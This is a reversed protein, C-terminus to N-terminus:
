LTTQNNVHQISATDAPSAPHQYEGGLVTGRFRMRLCMYNMLSEKLSSKTDTLFNM